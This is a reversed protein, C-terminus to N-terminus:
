QIALSRHSIPKTKIRFYIFVDLRGVYLDALLKTRDACLRHIEINENCIPISSLTFFKAATIKRRM